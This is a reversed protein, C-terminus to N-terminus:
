IRLNLLYQFVISTHLLIIIFKNKVYIGKSTGIQVNKQLKKRCYIHPYVEQQQFICM